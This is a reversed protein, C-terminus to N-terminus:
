LAPTEFEGLLPFFWPRSDLLDVRRADIEPGPAPGPRPLRDWLGAPLERARGPCLWAFGALAGSLLLTDDELRGLLHEWDLTPGAAYILNWVDTWDCRDRHFVYLKAWILEEAPIVRVREGRLEIEPGRTLWGQDVIARRNATAWITDVIIENHHARYIWGRDYELVHSYDVLGVGTVIEIMRDRDEPAVFFDLDKTNRWTGTHTALAFAGGLAFPVGAARVAALVRQYVAWEDDPILDLWPHPSAAQEHNM